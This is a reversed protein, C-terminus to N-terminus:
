VKALEENKQLEVVKDKRLKEDAFTFETQFPNTTTVKGKHIWGVAAAKPPKPEKVSVQGVMELQDTKNDLRFDLKVTVSGEAKAQHEKAHNALNVMLDSYSDWVETSFNGKDFLGILSAINNVTAM